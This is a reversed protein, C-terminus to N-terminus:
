FGTKRVIFLGRDIDSIAINGSEFYPYVSWVGNFNASNNEPYTDFFGVENLGNNDIASIDIFRVGATYNALYFLTGKVYGNHDIARTPGLYAAKFIPNDLDTFDLIITRTRIGLMTEDSEDGVIFYRHDETFWGQHTFGVDPYSLTSINRPNEKDTVDVIVVKNGNSGVFIEKGVYDTDPGNYTIVQADHTEGDNSYGGAAIPNLPNQIDIFHPGGDFINTGVAYAFGAAENIIINHSHGFGTYNTDSSFTQPPNTVNRLKTLDFVQMGHNNAESVIFAYDNYVKIDRWPSNFTATPLKGLYIPNLPDSIDIFGTGNNLGMLVYEKGTTSDTWGWVDNGATAAMGSLTIHAMLDYNNCPFEGAMGNECVIRTSMVQECVDGIGNNNADAQDANPTSPCNDDADIIGDNDADAMIQVVEIQNDSSSCSILITCVFLLYLLSSFLKKFVM